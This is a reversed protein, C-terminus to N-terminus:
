NNIMCIRLRVDIRTARRCNDRIVRPSPRLFCYLAVPSFCNKKRQLIRFNNNYFVKSLEFQIRKRRDFLNPPTRFDFINRKRKKVDIKRRKLTSSTEGCVRTCTILRNENIIREFHFRPKNDDAFVCLEPCNGRPTHLQLFLLVLSIKQRTKHYFSLSDDLTCGLEIIISCVITFYSRWWFDRTIPRTMWQDFTMNRM